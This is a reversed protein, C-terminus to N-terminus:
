QRVHSRNEVIQEERAQRDDEATCCNPVLAGGTPGVVRVGRIPEPTDERLDPHSVPHKPRLLVPLEGGIPDPERVDRLVGLTAIGAQIGIIEVGSSQM